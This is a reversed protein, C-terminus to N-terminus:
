SFRLAQEWRAGFIWNRESESQANGSGPCDSADQAGAKRWYRRTL